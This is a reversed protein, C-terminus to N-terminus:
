GRQGSRAARRACDGRDPRRSTGRCWGAGAPCRIDAQKHCRAPRRRSCGSAALLCRVSTSREAEPPYITHIVAYLHLPAAPERDATTATGSGPRPKPTSSTPSSGPPRPSGRCPRRLLGRCPPRASSGGGARSCTSGAPRPPIFAHHIQPHQELWERTSVSNHSSLQRHRDLTACASQGQRGRGPVDPLQRQQALGGDDDGTPRLLDAPRRPGMDEGARPRVGARGQGPPRRGELDPGSPLYASDGIRARRRLDRHRQEAPRHLARRYGDRQGSGRIQASLDVVPDTALARGRGEPDASRPATCTSGDARATTILSDVTWVPAGDAWAPFLEGWSSRVQKGPPEAKVLASIRSRQSKAIRSQGGGPRDGLGHVGDANFRHLLRRVTKRDAGVREAIETVRLGDWSFAVIRARRIWDAPAYRAVALKRM